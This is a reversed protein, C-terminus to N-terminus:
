FTGTTGAARLTLSSVGSTSGCDGVGASKITAYTKTTALTETAAPDAYSSGATTPGTMTFKVPAVPTTTTVKITPFNISTSAIAAPTWTIGEYFGPSLFAAVHNGGPPALPIHACSNAAVGHIIGKGIITGLTPTPTGGVCPKAVATISIEENTATGGNILPPGFHLTGTWAGTCKTHGAGLVNPQVQAASAASPAAVVSAIDVLVVSLPVLAAIITVVARRTMLHEKSTAASERRYAVSM